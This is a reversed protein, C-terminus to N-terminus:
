RGNKLAWLVGNPKMQQIAWQGAMANFSRQIASESSRSAAGDGAGDGGNQVNITSDISISPGGALARAPSGAGVIGGDVYGRLGRRMAEVVGLGGARAIDTQSWVVEGKHVVGAPEYKGGDGTYGGASFGWSGSFLSGLTGTYGSGGGFSNAIGMAAQRFAIRALDALISRTMDSFSIKGTETFKVWVDELGGFVNSVLGGMQQAANGAQQKYNEWASAAGLLWNGEAQQLERYGDRVAQVRDLTKALLIAKEEEFTSDDIQDANRQLTLQRLKEAQDDYADNIRQQIEFERDGMGVQAVRTELHRRLADNSAELADSYAAIANRRTKVAREEETALVQLKAAGDTRVKALRAELEGLQRKVTIGEKGAVNQRQLFDIQAQLSRADADTSAQTLEKMRSYYAEATIQRAAYEARLTQTSASITAQEQVLDDKYGQLGAGRAASGTSAKTKERYKKEIAEVAAARREEIKEVETTLGAAEAKKRAIEAEGNIRGIEARKKSIKSEQKDIIGDMEAVFDLSAAQAAKLEADKREKSLDAAIEKIQKARTEIRQQYEYVWAASMGDAVGKNMTAVDRQNALLLQQMQMAQPGAGTSAQMAGWAKTAESWIAKWGQIVPNQSARVRALAMETEGASARTIVTAADQNRGQEQLAKVQEYLAVTMFDIKENLEAAYKVPDEALKAYLAVTEEISQGTIEKMAVAANAVAQMNEAAIKGNAGIAVAAEEGVGATVQLADSTNQALTVLTLTTAAAENRSLVLAKTYAEQQKEADYWAYVLVGVAAAAVTYPNVMGLLASSVGKLAPEVGGFSDKIQGGQQVLVTFFPMGGQLSTFIDTFQAPLQRMAQATQGASIGLDSIPNKTPLPRAAEGRIERLQRTLVGLGQRIDDLDASIRVRLNASPEAM